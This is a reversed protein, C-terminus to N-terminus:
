ASSNRRRIIAFRRNRVGRRIRNSAKPTPGYSITLYLVILALLLFGYMLCWGKTQSKGCIAKCNEQGAVFAVCTGTANRLAPTTAKVARKLELYGLGLKLIRMPALAAGASWITQRDNPRTFRPRDILRLDACRFSQAAPIFRKALPDYIVVSATRNRSRALMLAITLERYAHVMVWFWGVM